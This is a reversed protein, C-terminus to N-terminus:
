VHLAQQMLLETMERVVRRSLQERLYDDYFDGDMLSQIPFSHASGIRRGRHVVQVVVLLEGYRRFGEVSTSVVVNDFIAEMQTKTSYRIADQLMTLTM